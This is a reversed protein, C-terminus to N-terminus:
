LFSPCANSLIEGFCTSVLPEKSLGSIVALRHNLKAVFVFGLLTEYSGSLDSTQWYRKSSGIIGARGATGRVVSQTVPTGGSTRNRPEYTKFVDQFINNADSASQRQGPADAVHQDPM